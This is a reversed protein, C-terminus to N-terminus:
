TKFRCGTGVKHIKGCIFCEYYNASHCEPCMKIGDVEIIDFIHTIKGCIECHKLFRKPIKTGSRVIFGSKKALVTREAIELSVAKKILRKKGDYVDWM